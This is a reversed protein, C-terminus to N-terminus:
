VSCLDTPAIGLAKALAARLRDGGTFPDKRGEELESLYPQSIGVAAAVEQQTKGADKRAQRIREGITLRKRAM